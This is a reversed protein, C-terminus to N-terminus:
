SYMNYMAQLEASKAEQSIAQKLAEREQKRILRYVQWHHLGITNSIKVSGYVEWLTLFPIFCPRGIELSIYPAEFISGKHGKLRAYKRLQVM